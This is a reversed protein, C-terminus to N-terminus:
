RKMDQRFRNNVTYDQQYASDQQKNKCIGLLRHVTCFSSDTYQTIDSIRCIQKDSSVDQFKSCLDKIMGFIQIHVTRYFQLKQRLIGDKVTPFIFIAVFGTFM